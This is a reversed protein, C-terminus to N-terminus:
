GWKRIKNTSSKRSSSTWFWSVRARMGSLRMAVPLSTGSIDVSILSLPFLKTQEFSRAWNSRPWISDQEQQTKQNSSGLCQKPPHKEHNWITFWPLTTLSCDYVMGLKVIFDHYLAALQSHYQLWVVWLFHHHSPSPKVAAWPRAVVLDHSMSVPGLFLNVSRYLSLSLHLYTFKYMCVNNSICYIYIHIYIHMCFFSICIYTYENFHNITLSANYICQIWVNYWFCKMCVNYGYMTSLVYM